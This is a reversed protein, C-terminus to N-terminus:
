LSAPFRRFWLVGLAGSMMAAIFLGMKVQAVEIPSSLTIEAIVLSVTLGMGALLGIGAVERVDLRDPLKLKSFRNLAWATITIGLVKGLIRAVVVAISIRSTALSFDLKSLLNIWIYIPIVIFTVIPSLAKILQARYPLLFGLSAAGITFIASELHLDNRFFIGIAVLSLFDDAVALMLLFLRVGPNIRKGAFSLAALALAVDTPMVVAWSDSNRVLVLFIAAPFAMGALACLTPLALDKPYKLGQRIELGILLFFIFSLVETFV